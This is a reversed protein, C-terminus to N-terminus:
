DESSKPLPYVREKKRIMGFDERAVKEVYDMDGELRSLVNILSDRESRLSEVKDNLLILEDRTRDLEWVTDFGLNLCAIFLIVITLFFIRWRSRKFMFSITTNKPWGSRKVPAEMDRETDIM